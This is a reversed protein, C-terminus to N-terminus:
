VCKRELLLFFEGTKDNMIDSSVSFGLADQMWKISFKHEAWVSVSITKNKYSNLIDIFDPTIIDFHKKKMYKSSLFWAYLLDYREALGCIFLLQGAENVGSLMRTTDNYLDHFYDDLFCPNIEVGSAEVEKRDYERLIKLIERVDDIDFFSSILM